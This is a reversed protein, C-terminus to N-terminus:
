EPLRQQERSNVNESQSQGNRPQGILRRIAQCARLKSIKANRASTKQFSSIKSETWTATIKWYHYYGPLPWHPSVRQKLTPTHIYIYINVRM